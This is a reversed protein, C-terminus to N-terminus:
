PTPANELQEFYRFILVLDYWWDYEKAYNGDAKLLLNKPLPHRRDIHPVIGTKITPLDTRNEIYGIWTFNGKFVYWANRIFGSGNKHILLLLPSILLFLTAVLMDILRKMRQQTPQDIRYDIFANVLIPTSTFTHSGIIGLSGKHHFLFRFGKSRLQQMNLIALSLDIGGINFIIENVPIRESFSALESLTCVSNEVPVGTSVQGILHDDLLAKELIHIIEEYGSTDAIAVMQGVSDKTESLLTSKNKRLWARFIFLLMSGMSGGLLVVGRSFRYMEPLLSYLALLSIFAFILSIAARSHKYGKDYWGGIAASFVFWFSFLSLANQIFDVGFPKGSRVIEVWGLNTIQLSIWIILLDLLPLRIPKLIQYVASLSGRIAIAFKLLVTFLKSSSSQFHKSVFVLMAQYFHGTKAWQNQRSSEGKFHIITTEGFYRNQFGAKQIRYSLDIDEGYLFYQEDFGNLTKLLDSRIMMCAGAVVDIAYNQQDDLNGLAYRNFFSSGPFLKALGVLKNLAAMPSPFARKSEPLFNGNGDVMRVGLAGTDPHEHFYRLCSKLLDEPILTDPNLFLVYEGSCYPIASNNARAFGLNSDMQIFRVDPFLPQLYEVSGDKSDNDVVILETQLGEM